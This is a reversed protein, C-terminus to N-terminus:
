EMLVWTSWFLLILTTSLIAVLCIQVIKWSWVIERVKEQSLRIKLIFGQNESVM